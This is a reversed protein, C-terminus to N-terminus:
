ASKYIGYVPTRIENYKMNPITIHMSTTAVIRHMHCSPSPSSLWLAHFVRWAADHYWLSVSLQVGRSYSAKLPLPHCKGPPIILNLSFILSLNIFTPLASSLTLMEDKSPGMANFSIIILWSIWVIVFSSIYGSSWIIVLKIKDKEIVINRRM